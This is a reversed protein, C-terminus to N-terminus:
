ITAKQGRGEGIGMYLASLGYYGCCRFFPAPDGPPGEIVEGEELGDFVTGGAEPLV